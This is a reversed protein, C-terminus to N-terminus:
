PDVVFFYHILEGLFVLVAKYWQWARPLANILHYGIVQARAGWVVNLVFVIILANAAVCFLFSFLRGVKRTDSETQKDDESLESRRQESGLYYALFHGFHFALTAGILFDIYRATGGRMFFRAVIFPITFTPLYYPALTILFPGRGRKIYGTGDDKAMFETVRSLTVLAMLLHALEHVFAWVLLRNSHGGPPLLLM